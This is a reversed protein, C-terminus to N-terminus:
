PFASRSVRSISRRIFLRLGLPSVPHRSDLADFDAHDIELGLHLPDVRDLGEDTLLRGKDADGIGVARDADAVAVRDAGAARGDDFQEGARKGGREQPAVARLDLLDPAIEKEERM